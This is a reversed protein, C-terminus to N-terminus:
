LQGVWDAVPSVCGSDAPDCYNNNWVAFLLVVLLLLVGDPTKRIGSCRPLAWRAAGELADTLAMVVQGYAYVPRVPPRQARDYAATAALQPVLLLARLGGVLAITPAVAAPLAWPLFSRTLGQLLAFLLGGVALLEVAEALWLPFGADGLPKDILRVVWGIGPLDFLPNAVGYIV